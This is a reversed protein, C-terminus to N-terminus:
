PYRREVATLSKEAPITYQDGNAMKEQALVAGLGVPSAGANGESCQISRAPREGM